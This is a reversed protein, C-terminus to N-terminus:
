QYQANGQGFWVIEGTQVQLLQMQIRASKVEGRITTYLLYQAGSSRALALAKGKSRLSDKDKLGLAAKAQLLQQESVLSFKHNDALQSRLTSAANATQVSGNTSNKVNDVLLVSGPDVTVSNMMQELLPSLSANWDIDNLKPPEPVQSPKAIEPVSPEPQVSQESGKGDANTNKETSDAHDHFHFSCGTLLMGLLFIGTLKLKSM